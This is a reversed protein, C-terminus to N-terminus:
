CKVLCSTPWTGCKVTQPKNCQILSSFSQLLIVFLSSMILGKSKSLTPNCFVLCSKLFCLFFFQVLVTGSWIFVTLSQATVGQKLHLLSDNYHAVTVSCDKRKEFSKKCDIWAMSQRSLFWKGAVGKIVDTM